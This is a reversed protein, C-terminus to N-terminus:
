YGITFTRSRSAQYAAADQATVQTRAVLLSGLSPMEKLPELSAATVRTGCLDLRELQRLGGLHKLGDGDINTDCLWLVKLDGCKSIDELGRDSIDAGWIILKELDPLKAIHALGRDSIQSSRANPAPNPPHSKNLKLSRISPIQALHALGEDSITTWKLDVKELKKLGVLHRLEDNSFETFQLTLESLQPLTGILPLLDDVNLQGGLYIATVHPVFEGDYQITGGVQELQKAVDCQRSSERLQSAFWAAPLALISTAILAARLSFQLRM